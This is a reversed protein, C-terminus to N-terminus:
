AHIRQFIGHVLDFVVGLGEERHHLLLGFLHTFSSAIRRRNKTKKKCDVINIMKEEFLPPLLVFLAAAISNTPLAVSRIKRGGGWGM